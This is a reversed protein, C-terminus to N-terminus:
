EGNIVSIIGLLSLLSVSYTGNYRKCHAYRSDLSRCTDNEDHTEIMIITAACDDSDTGKENRQNKIDTKNNKLIYRNTCVNTFVSPSEPNLDNNDRSIAEHSMVCSSITQKEYRPTDKRTRRANTSNPLSKALIDKLHVSKKMREASKVFYVVIICKCVGHEDKNICFDMM